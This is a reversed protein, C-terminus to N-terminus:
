RAAPVSCRRLPSQAFARESSSCATATSRAPFMARDSAGASSEGQAPAESRMQRVSEQLAFMGYMGTHTYGHSASDVGSYFHMPPGSYFHMM